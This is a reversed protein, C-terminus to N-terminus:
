SRDLYHYWKKFVMVIALLKSNHIKYNQEAATMKQSFFVSSYCHQEESKGGAPQTLVGGIMYGSTDTEVQILKDSDFYVLM